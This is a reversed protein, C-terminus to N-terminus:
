KVQIPACLWGWFGDLAVWLSHERAQKVDYVKYYTKIGDNAQINPGMWTVLGYGMENGDEDECHTGQGGCNEERWLMHDEFSGGGYYNAMWLVTPLETQNHLVVLYEGRNIEKPGFVTCGEDTFTLEFDPPRAQLIELTTLTPTGAPTETPAITPQPTKSPQPTDPIAEETSTPGCATITFVVLFTLNILLKRTLNIM